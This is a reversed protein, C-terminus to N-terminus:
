AVRKRRIRKRGSSHHIRDEMNVAVELEKFVEPPYVLADQQCLNTLDSFVQERKEPKILEKVRILSSTDIVFIEGSQLEM